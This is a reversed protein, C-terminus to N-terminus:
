RDYVPFSRDSSAEALTAQGGGASRDTIRRIEGVVSSRWADHDVEVPEFHGIGSLEVLKVMDDVANARAVYSRAIAIPVHQDDVGHIVSVPKGIPLRSAPCALAYRAPVDEVHGGLLANVAGGHMLPAVAPWLEPRRPRTGRPPAPVDPDAMERGLRLRDSAHLDLVGGLSVAGCLRVAPTSGPAYDPLFERGALWCALQGGASHGVGIVRSLDLPYEDVLKLLSDTAASVDLFTGPWGGGPDGIARHDVNLVAFGRGALDVALADMQDRMFMATWFGGHILVVVPHPGPGEPVRLDAVQEGMPGYALSLSASV